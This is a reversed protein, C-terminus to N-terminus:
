NCLSHDGHSLGHGGVAALVEALTIDGTDALTHLSGKLGTDYVRDTGGNKHAQKQFGASPSNKVPSTSMLAM